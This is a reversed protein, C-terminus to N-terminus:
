LKMPEFNLFDAHNIIISEITSRKGDGEHSHYAIAHCIEEPLGARYAIGMGSLPHRLLKGSGSVVTKGDKSEYEIFKGIDHLLAASILKDSDAHIKPKNPHAERLANAIAIATKTVGRIHDLMSAPCPDILLTFPLKPIDEPNWGGETLAIVYADLTKERLSSDKILDFEPIIARLKDKM